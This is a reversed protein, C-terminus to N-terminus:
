KKFKLNGKKGKGKKLKMKHAAVLREHEATLDKDRHKAAKKLRVQDEATLWHWAEHSSLDKAYELPLRGYVVVMCFCIIYIVFFLVSCCQFM